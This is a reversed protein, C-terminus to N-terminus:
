GASIALWQFILTALAILCGTIIITNAIRWKLGPDHHCHPCPKGDTTCWSQVGCEKCATTTLKEKRM